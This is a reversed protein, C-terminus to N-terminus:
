KRKERRDAPNSKEWSPIIMHNWFKAHPKLQCFFYSKPQVFIWPVWGAGPPTLKKPPKELFVFLFHKSNGSIALFNITFKKLDGGGRGSVQASFNGSINIPAQASSRAHPSGPTLAGMLELPFKISAKLFQGCYVRFCKTLPHSKSMLLTTSSDWFPSM